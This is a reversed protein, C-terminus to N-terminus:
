TYLNYYAEFSQQIEELKHTQTKNNRQNRIKYITRETEQKCLRWSLLKMAKLVLTM